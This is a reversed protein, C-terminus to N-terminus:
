SSRQRMESLARSLDMSSRKVAGSLSSGCIPGAWRVDKREHAEEAEKLEKAKALFREAEAIAANLKEIKM